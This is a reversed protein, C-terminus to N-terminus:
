KHNLIYEKIAMSLLDVKKFEKHDICFQNFMKLVDTNIRVTTLSTEENDLDIIINNSLIKKNKKYMELMEILTDYEKAINLINEQLQTSDSIEVINCGDTNSATTQVYKDVKGVNVDTNCNNYIYKNLEKSYIYNIKKFRDRITSRGIGLSKCVSTVSNNNELENNIYEVQKLTDLKNFEEKTM